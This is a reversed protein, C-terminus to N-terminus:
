GAAPLPKVMILCPNGPWLDLIEELPQFGMAAYFTRTREYHGDPRSPGLTKVELLTVGDAILDQELAEVLARGIGRRHSDPAVAMLHIEAATPFHRAVLVAGVPTGDSSWALYTPMTHADEVYSKIASEIGFWEPLSRLLREVAEPDRHGSTIRM